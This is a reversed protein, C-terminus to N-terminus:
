ATRNLGPAHGCNAFPALSAAIAGPATHALSSVVGGFGPGAFSSDAVGVCNHDNPTPSAAAAAVAPAATMATVAVLGLLLKRV